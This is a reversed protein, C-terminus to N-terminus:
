EAITEDLVIKKVVKHLGPNIELMAPILHARCLNRKFKLNQNSVDELWPVKHETAWDILTQKRNIRFPRIVNAHRYPIPSPAAGHCSSMAWNEVCDDLHHAMLITQEFSKFWAYRADRWHEELSKGKPCEPEAIKTSRVKIRYEKCYEAVLKLADRGYDTGHDFCYVTVDHKRRLFDLMAMSDVGGSVAAGVEKPVKGQVKIM